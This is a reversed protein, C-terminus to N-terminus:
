RDLGKKWDDETIFSMRFQASLGLKQGKLVLTMDKIGNERLSMDDVMYYVDVKGDPRIIGFNQSTENGGRYDIKGSNLASVEVVENYIAGGGNGDDWLREGIVHNDDGKLETPTLEFDGPYKGTISTSLLAYQARDSAGSAYVSIWIIGGFVAAIGL